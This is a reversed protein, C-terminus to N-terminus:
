WSFTISINGITQDSVGHLLPSLEKQIFSLSVNGAVLVIGADMTATIRKLSPSEGVSDVGAYYNSKGSFVGGQLLANYTWWQVAPKIFLYYQLGRRGVKKYSAFQETYGNFYPRMGGVRLQIHISAGDLMTGVQAQGGGMLEFAKGPQWIMKEAQMDINLLIDNPMQDGWGMPRTYGIISHAWTQTEKAFAWPGIVGATIETLFAFKKVPNSSYLGHSLVLTGSYPWDNKDPPLRSIDNPVLMVQMISYSFMNVSGTGARPFWNDLFFRAPHKKQFFYDLRTGNTYGRDTGAGAINIFDNDEYLRFLHSSQPQAKSCISFFLILLAIWYKYSM